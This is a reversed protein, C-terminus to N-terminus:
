PDEVLQGGGALIPHIAKPACSYAVTGTGSLRVALDDTACVAVQGSGVLTVDATSTRLGKAACISDTVVLELHTAEGELRLTASGHVTATLSAAAINTVGVRASEMVTVTAIPPITIRIVEQADPVRGAGCLTLVGDGAAVIYPIAEASAAVGTQGADVTVEVQCAGVVALTHFVGVGLTTAGDAADAPQADSNTARAPQADSQYASRGADANAAEADVNASDHAGGDVLEGAVVVKATCGILAALGGSVLVLRCCPHARAVMARLALRVRSESCGKTADGSSGPLSAVRVAARAFVHALGAPTEHPPAQVNAVGTM